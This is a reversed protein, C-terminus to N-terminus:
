YKKLKKIIETASNDVKQKTLTKAELFVKQLISTWSGFVYQDVYYLLNPVLNFKNARFSAVKSGNYYIAYIYYPNDMDDDTSNNRM